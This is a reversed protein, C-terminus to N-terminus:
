PGPEVDRLAATPTTGLRASRPLSVGAEVVVASFYRSKALRLTAPRQFLAGSDRGEVVMTRVHAFGRDLYYQQLDLNDRWCDLRVWRKGQSQAQACAWDLLEDGLGTGRYRGTIMFKYLYLAADPEDDKTWFDLDPHDLTLSAVVARDDDVVLYTGGAAIRDRIIRIGRERDTWQRVGAAHLWRESEIRLAVVDDVDAGTAERVLM